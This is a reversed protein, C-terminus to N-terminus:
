TQKGNLMFDVEHHGMYVYSMSLATYVTPGQVEEPMAMAVLQWPGLMEMPDHDHHAVLDPFRCKEEM